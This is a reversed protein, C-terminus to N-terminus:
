RIALVACNTWAGDKPKSMLGPGVLAQLLIDIGVLSPDNPIDVDVDFGDFPWNALFFYVNFPLICLEGDYPPTSYSGAPPLGWIGLASDGADFVYHITV